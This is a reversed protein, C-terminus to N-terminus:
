NGCTGPPQAPRQPPRVVEYDTPLVFRSPDPAALDVRIAELSTEMGTGSTVSRLHVGDDTICARLLIQEVEIRWVTCAIDQVREAGERTFRANAVMLTENRFFPESNPMEMITRNTDRVMVVRRANYDVLTWSRGGGFDTRMMRRAASWARTVEGERGGAQSRYTITFDRRPEQPPRDQAWTPPALFLCCLVFIRRM